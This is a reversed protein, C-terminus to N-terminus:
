RVYRRLRATLSLALAIKLADPVVYPFVCWGLATMVGVAGETRAYAFLFWATGFAYCALLGLVMSLGLVWLKTGFLREMGWMLLAAFLFGVLYGGSPTLYAGIGGSFDALVPAGIAGLLLYSIIAATGRRGGLLGMTLFVGFTQLTLSINSPTPIAIWSCVAMLATFIATCAINRTNPRSMTTEM